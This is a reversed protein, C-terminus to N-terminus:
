ILLDVNLHPATNEVSVKRQPPIIGLMPAGVAHNVSNIVDPVHELDLDMLNAVWGAVDLGHHRVCEITLSAHSICGLRIAVVIVIPLKLAAALDAITETDNIPVKWGGVGEVVVYDAHKAAEKVANVVTPIEINIGAEAAAIHPSVPPPFCYPNVTEYPLEIKASSMIREADVCRMGQKKKKGGTAIPKLGVAKINRRSFAEVLGATVVTKGVHTDTGTIFFGKM